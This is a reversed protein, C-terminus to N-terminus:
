VFLLLVSAALLTAMAGNFMRLARPSKLLRGIVSGFVTWIGCSPFSIALFVAGFLLSQPLASLDPTSYVSFASVAMIWAKPNIWQFGAAQLFTFPKGRNETEGMGAATAIRWALWLLYAGGAWRLIEHLVPLQEFVAGLGLGIAFVMLPFGFSIGLMHPGTARLGFNAGSALLMVNNPGPTLTASMAFLIFPLLTESM